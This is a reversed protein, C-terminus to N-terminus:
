SMLLYNVNITTDINNTEPRVQNNNNESTTLTGVKRLIKKNIYFTQFNTLRGLKSIRKVYSYCSTDYGHHNIPLNVNVREYIRVEIRVDNINENKVIVVRKINELEVGLSRKSLTVIECLDGKVLM